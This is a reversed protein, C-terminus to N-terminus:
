KIISGKSQYLQEIEEESLVRNYIALEDMLGVYNWGLYIASQDVVWTFPERISRLTGKSIGNVFLTAQGNDSNLREFVMVVHTWTSRSFSPNKVRVVRREFLERTRERNTIWASSDPLIGMRFDRPDENTFDVWLAGDDYRSDTIQIPDCYGPALGNVMDASLWFSITGSWNQAQYDINNLGQYHIIGKTKETFELAGGKLGGNPIIRASSYESGLLSSDLKGFSPVSYIQSKGKAFDADMSEDFSSYLTLSQDFEQGSPACGALLILVSLISIPKIPNNLKIKM